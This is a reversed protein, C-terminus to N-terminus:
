EAHTDIVFEKGDPLLVAKTNGPLDGMERADFLAGALAKNWKSQTWYADKKFPWPITDADGAPYMYVLITDAIHLKGAKATLKVSDSEHLQSLKM